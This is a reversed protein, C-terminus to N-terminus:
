EKAELKKRGSYSIVQRMDSTQLDVVVLSQPSMVRESKLKRGSRQLAFISTRPPISIWRQDKSRSIDVIWLSLPSV